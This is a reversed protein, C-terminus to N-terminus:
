IEGKIKFEIRRNQSRGEPTKNSAIPMSEGYGVSKILNPNVGQNILYKRIVDARKQSLWKNYNARGKSDTHGGIELILGDQHSCEKMANAIKDLIEYSDNALQSSNFAFHITDTSLASNIMDQCSITAIQQQTNVADKKIEKKTVKKVIKPTTTKPTINNAVAIKAGKIPSTVIYDGKFRGYHNNPNSMVTKISELFKVKQEYSPLHAKFLYAKNTINMEGFDVNSLKEIGFQSMYLWDKPAGEQIKLSDKIDSDKFYKKATDLLKDHAKKNPVVGELFLKGKANKVMYINYNEASKKSEQGQKEVNKAVDKQASSNSNNQENENTAVSNSDINEQTNDTLKGSNELQLDNEVGGIGPIARIIQAAENKAELTPATGTLRIINTSQLDDGVLHANAWSFQHATLTSDAKSILNTKISDAKTKFCFLSLLGILIMGLLALLVKRM